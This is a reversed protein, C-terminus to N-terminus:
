HIVTPPERRNQQNFRISSYAKACHQKKRISLKNENITSSNKLLPFSRSTSGLMAHRGGSHANRNSDPQHLRLVLDLTVETADWKGFVMTGIGAIPAEVRSDEHIAEESMEIGVKHAEKVVEVMEDLIRRKGQHGQRVGPIDGSTRNGRYGRGIIKMSM